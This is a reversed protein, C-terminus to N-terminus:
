DERGSRPSASEDLGQRPLDPQAISIRHDFAKPGAHAACAAFLPDEPESQGHEREVHHGVAAHRPPETRNRRDHQREREEGKEQLATAPGCV